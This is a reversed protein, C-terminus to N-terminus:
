QTNGNEMQNSNKTTLAKLIEVTECTHQDRNSCVAGMHEPPGSMENQFHSVISIKFLCKGKGM